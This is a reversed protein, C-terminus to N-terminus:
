YSPINTWFVTQGTSAAKRILLGTGPPILDSGHDNSPSDGYLRWANNMYYYTTSPAKNLAAQSNNYLLLEDQFNRTSTTAVFSGAAPSLGTNNLSVSVPQIIAVPNDQPGTSLTSLPAIFQAGSVNGALVLPLTPAGNQNRVILFGNPLLPDNGHDTTNADGYLRWGVNTGSNIFYYTKTPALNIGPDTYDPILIETQINRTSTTPTFSVNASAAPFITNLTWCPVLTIQTGAPVAAITDGGLALTITAAANGTVIYWSGDKPNVTSGPGPGLLAFYTNVQTGAAYIFQNATWNPSGGVTVVNGAVSQVSGTFVPPPLFPISIRTDSNALLGLYNGSSDFGGLEILGYAPGAISQATAPAIFASWLVTAALCIFPATAPKM